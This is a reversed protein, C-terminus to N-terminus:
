GRRHCGLPPLSTSSSASSANDPISERCNRTTSRRNKAPSVISSAAVASPIDDAVTSRSHAKAFAQSKRRSDGYAMTTFVSSSSSLQTSFSFGTCRISLFRFLAAGARCQRLRRWVTRGVDPAECTAAGNCSTLAGHDASRQRRWPAPPRSRCEGISRVDDAFFKGHVSARRVWNQVVWIGTPASVASTSEDRVPALMLFRGDAAV